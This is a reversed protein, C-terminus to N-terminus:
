SSVGPAAAGSEPFSGSGTLPEILEARNGFPDRFEFRDFGPIPVSDLPRVGHRELRRRWAALDRVAYAVHAKTASRDVGDETGVHVLPAGASGGPSLWIGGRGALAAPKPVERMGLVNCYFRRAADERGLPVTIQVHHVAVLAPAAARDTSQASEGNM